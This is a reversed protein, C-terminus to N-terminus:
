IVDPFETLEIPAGDRHHEAIMAKVYDESTHTFEVSYKCRPKNVEYINALTWGEEEDREWYDYSEECFRTILTTNEYNLSYAEALRQYVTEVANIVSPGPNDKLETAVILVQDDSQWMEIRCLGENSYRYDKYRMNFRYSFTNANPPFGSIAKNRM